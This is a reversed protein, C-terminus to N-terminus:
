SLLGRSKGGDISITTGTLYAGAASCMFVAVRAFEEPSGYRRLPIDRESEAQTAKIDVRRREASARDLFAVRETGIRGPSFCLVRIGEPGLETAASKALATVGSRMVNSAVLGPIPERVGSSTLFAIVGRRRIRMPGVVAALFAYASRLLLQYAKDLGDLGLDLVGSPAPGGGGLIAIDLGHMEEETDKAVQALAQADRIDLVAIRVQGCKGLHTRAEELKPGPRASVTVIAGEMLLERAIAYGLGTSGGVVWARSGALGLNM